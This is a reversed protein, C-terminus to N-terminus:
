KPLELIYQAQLIGPVPSGPPSGDISDRLTPCSQLLDAAAAAAALHIWYQFANSSLFIYMMNINFKSSLRTGSRIIIHLVVEDASKMLVKFLEKVGYRSEQKVNYVFKIFYIRVTIKCLFIIQKFSQHFM